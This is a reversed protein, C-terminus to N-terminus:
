RRDLWATGRWPSPDSGPSQDPEARFRVDVHPMALSLRAKLRDRLEESMADRTTVVAENSRGAEALDSSMAVLRPIAHEVIREELSEDALDSLAKRTLALLAAAGTSQLKATYRRAEEANAEERAIQERELRARADALLATREGEAAARVEKMAAERSDRLSATEKQFNAEATEAADRIRSAEAMRETIQRERADIGDLIPRYLFRKLLWILVLFNAIQAAVTIWDISM